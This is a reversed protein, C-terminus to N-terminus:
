GKLLASIGKIIHGNVIHLIGKMMAESITGEGTTVLSHFPMEKIMNTMMAEEEESTKTVKKTMRGAVWLILKGVLTYEMDELTNNHDYPRTPLSNHIPLPKGYLAAFEQDTVRFEGQGLEYYAPAVKRLDPQPRESSNLMVTHQLRIDAGSAGVSIEYSGSEAYWDKILINYYGFETTDLSVTIRKSEGASLEVKQFARLEKKPLFVAENNHGVFLFVTEKAKVDGENTITFTVDIMEGCVCSDKSVELDTYTFSTYSLGYGFPFRVQKEAKEYYRYGVYISERYEVTNRGGPFYHYSPNDSLKLPWTEALKGCPVVKGLLLNVVARGCGEGALYALLIGKVKDYWPLEMAAGGHLIVVVNPNCEAVAAILRNHHEPMTMTTRDYGESEYGEPLGAFLYVIDKGKAAECAEAILEAEKGQGEKSERGLSYGNAYTISFGLEEFVDFANEVKIPHLKSSGAGQYRPTKAFAGIVAVSQNTRGPLINDTNKLLVMSQEAATVALDHHKQTDYRYNKRKAEMQSLIIETIRCVSQNLKEESLEGNRVAAVLKADNIGMSGPMELDMGAMIGFPRNNVAGWDSVVLGEFGWEERLIKILLEQNESCYEGNLRNYACMVTKPRGKKVAIEFAKLYTERLAREDVVADITMRRREQNNVAFHKLSTGIGTSQVGQIMGAAMEGSVLPDESYYEFNRGCLPSRKQNVGPGLIVSVEEQLCEEGIARGVERVLEVDFSCSMASATPFCVAPLSDGIGLNDTSGVQKRLGHPGDDVMISELGLRPIDKLNWCDKGSCLSAKEELTMQAVLEEAKIKIQEKSLQEKSKDGSLDKNISEKMVVGKNLLM